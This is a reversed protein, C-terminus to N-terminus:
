WGRGAYREEPRLADVNIGAMPEGLGRSVEAVLDPDDHFTTALTERPRPSAMAPM